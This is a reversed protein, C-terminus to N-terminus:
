ESSSVREQSAMAGIWAALLALLTALWGIERYRYGILEYYDPQPVVYDFTRDIMWSQIAFAAAWLALLVVVGYAVSFLFHFPSQVAFRKTSQVLNNM